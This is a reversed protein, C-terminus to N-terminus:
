DKCLYIDFRGSQGAIVLDPKQGALEPALKPRKVVVRRRAAALAPGLLADADADQGVVTRFVRMEKKVLASKERHPFMPDLLVVDPREAEARSALALLDSLTDGAQFHLRELLEALERHQRARTLGDELLAAVVPSRERLEVQCGLSALILADRGLGATGDLISPRQGKRVGCAKAIQEGQGGGHALRWRLTSSAFDVRVPGPLPTEVAQLALGEADLVLVADHHGQLAQLAVRRDTFPQRQM